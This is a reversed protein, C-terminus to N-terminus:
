MMQPQVAPIPQQHMMSTPQAPESYGQMPEYPNESRKSKKSKKESKKKKKKKKEGSGDEEEEEEEDEAGLLGDHKLQAQAQEWVGLDLSYQTRSEEAANTYPLRQQDDMKKWKDGLISMIDKQKLESNSAKIKPMEECVYHLYASKAKKPKGQAVGTNNKRKKGNGRQYLQLPSLTLVFATKLSRDM